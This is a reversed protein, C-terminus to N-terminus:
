SQASCNTALLTDAVGSRYSVMALAKLRKLSINRRRAYGCVFVRTCLQAVMKDLSWKKDKEPVSECM